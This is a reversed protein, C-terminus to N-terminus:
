IGHVLHGLSGDLSAHRPHATSGGVDIGVGVGLVQHLVGVAGEGGEGAEVADVIVGSAGFGSHVVNHASVAIHGIGKDRTSRVSGGVALQHIDGGVVIGGVQVGVADGM